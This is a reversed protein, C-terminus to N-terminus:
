HGLLFNKARNIQAALYDSGGRDPHLKQMLLRHAHVIEQESAGSNLGLIQLALEETMAGTQEPRRHAGAKSNVYFERWLYRLQPAYRMILPLSRSIFALVVGGAALLWNLKGALALLFVVGGGGWWVAKKFVRAVEESPSQAFWRLAFLSAIILILLAIRILLVEPCVFLIGLRRNECVQLFGSDTM